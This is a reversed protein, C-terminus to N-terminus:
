SRRAFGSVDAAHSGRCPACEGDNIITRNGCHPCGGFMTGCNSARSSAITHGVGRCHECHEGGRTPSKPDRICRECRAFTRLKHCTLVGAVIEGYGVGCPEHHPTAIM